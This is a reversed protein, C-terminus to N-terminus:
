ISKNLTKFVKSKPFMGSFAALLRKFHVESEYSNIEKSKIIALKECIIQPIQDIYKDDAKSYFRKFSKTYKTWNYLLDSNNELLLEFAKKIVENDLPMYAFVAILIGTKLKPENWKLKLTNQLIGYSQFELFAEFLNKCAIQRQNDRTKQKVLDYFLKNGGFYKQLFMRPQAKYQLYLDEHYIKDHLEKPLSEM